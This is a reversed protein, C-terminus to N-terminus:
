RRNAKPRERRRRMGIESMKTDIELVLIWGDMEAEKSECVREQSCRDDRRRGEKFIRGLVRPRTGERFVGLCGRGIIECKRDM